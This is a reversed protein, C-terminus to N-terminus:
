SDTGPSVIIGGAQGDINIQTEVSPDGLEGALLRRALRLNELERERVEGQVRKVDVGRHMEKFKELLSHTGPLAEIFLSGTPVVIESSTLAPSQLLRKYQQVLAERRTEFEDTTLNERLCCVYRLFGDLTWNGDDDPDRVGLVPHVYPTLMYDTLANAEKLPFIMYNGKFGLPNDLDAVEALTKFELDTAIQIEGEVDVPRVTWHPYMVADVPALKLRYSRTGQLTPVKVKHLRFFRQDPPEHSWIAQMYHLINQKVHVELREIQVRRNLHEQLAATYAEAAANLATKERELRAFMEREQARVRELRGEAADKRMRAAEPSEDNGAFWESVWTFSGESDENEQIEAQREIARDVERQSEELTRRVSVVEGELREALRRQQELTKRREELAYEDGVVRTSLYTLAPLFSADLIVRRLIWDHAILWEEDIEDPKPVEQAVFIVPTVSHLQEAVRFRRQLEYFLYTVSLEDNPNTLEGSSTLEFTSEESTSVEHTREQKYEEAAKVVSERFQRKVDQSDSSADASFTSTASGKSLLVNYTGETGLSFNTRSQAKKVIESEVRGTESSDRSRLLSESTAVKEAHTRKVVQKTSFKRKEGPALTITKALEGAQYNLPTWKQRYHALLGFNISRQQASAGYVTFSYPARLRKELAELVGHLHGYGTVSRKQFAYRIKRDAFELLREGQRRLKPLRSLGGWGILLQPEQDETAIIEATVDCLSQRQASDLVNWQAPTVDFVRLVEPPPDAAVEVYQLLRAELLLPQLVKAGGPRPPHAQGGLEVIRRYAESADIVLREDLAEMWVHEFALQLNFFDYYRPVDAPGSGIEMAALKQQIAKDDAPGSIGFAVPNEPSTMNALLRQLARDLREEATAPEESDDAPSEGDGGGPAGNGGGGETPVGTLLEVCDDEGDHHPRCLQEVPDVRYLAHTEQPGNTTLALFESESLTIGTELADTGGLAAITEASLSLRSRMRSPNIRERIGADIVAACAADISLEDKAFGRQARMAPPTKLLADRLDGVASEIKADLARVTGIAAASAERRVAAIQARADTVTGLSTAAREFRRRTNGGAQPEPQGASELRARPIEISFEEHSGAGRRRETSVLPSSRASGALEPPSVSLVLDISRGPDAYSLEFAGDEDTVVAGIRRFTTTSRAAAAIGRDPGTATETGDDAATVVLGPIGEGTEHVLVRGRIRWQKVQMIPNYEISV